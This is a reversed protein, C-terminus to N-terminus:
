KLEMEILEITQTGNNSLARTLGTPQVAFDGPQLALSQNPEGATITALL